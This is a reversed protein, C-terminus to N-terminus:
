SKGLERLGDRILIDIPANDNQAAIKTIVNYADSRGYGLNVLASIADNINKNSEMINNTYDGTIITPSSSYEFKGKLETIIREALKPGVGSVSKFASKDKAAIANALQAPSLVSLIALAVKVGVGSIKTITRFTEQEDITSFGFLHIHDERVHTEIHLSAAEGKAPLNRLTNASCFVGYGVGGVDIIVSDTDITDIRGKLKKIM